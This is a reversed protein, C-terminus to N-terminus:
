VFLGVIGEVFLVTAPGLIAGVSGWFADYFQPTGKGLLKDYIVEKGISIAIGIFTAIGCDWNYMNFVSWGLPNIHIRFLVVIVITLLYILIFHKREDKTM